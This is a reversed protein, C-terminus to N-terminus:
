LRKAFFAILAFKQVLVVQLAHGLAPEVALIAFAAITVLTGIKMDIGLSTQDFAGPIVSAKTFMTVQVAYLVFFLGERSDM